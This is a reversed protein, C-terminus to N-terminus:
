ILLFLLNGTISTSEWIIGAKDRIEETMEGSIRLENDAFPSSYNPNFNTANLLIEYKKM